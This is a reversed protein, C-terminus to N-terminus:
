MARDPFDKFAQRAQCVVSAALSLPGSVYVGIGASCVGGAWVSPWLLRKDQWDSGQYGQRAAALLQEESPFLWEPANSQVHQEEVKPASIERM